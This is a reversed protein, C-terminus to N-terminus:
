YFDWDREQIAEIIAEIKLDIRMNSFAIEAPCYEQWDLYIKALNPDSPFVEAAMKAMIADVEAMNAVHDFLEIQQGAMTFLSLQM